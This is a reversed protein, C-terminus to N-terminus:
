AAAAAPAPRRLLPWLAVACLAAQSTLGFLLDLRGPLPPGGILLVWALALLAVRSRRGRVEGALHTILWLGPAVAYFSPTLPSRLSALLLLAIWTQARRPREEARRGARWALLALVATYVWSAASAVRTTMGPLGLADLKIVLGYISANRSIFMLERRFFSFAEGSAIRPLQYSVFAAYPAPGLVVLGLLIWAAAFACTWAVERYRRQAVLYVLLVGPFLKAVIAASLLGGGLIPRRAEFAWLGGVALAFTAAHFQGFQLNMLTPISALLPAILLGALLGERGGIWAAFLAAALALGLAQLLFWAARITLFDGSAALAARPLLLFPPPYEYPDEIWPGLNAVPSDFGPKSPEGPKWAFAPYFRADYLNPEGRRQLDAAHVYAALCQHGAAQPTPVASGWRRAPDGMFASLRALQALAILACLGWLAARLPRRRRAGRLSPPLRRAVARLPAFCAAGGSLGVWLGFRAAAPGVIAAAGLSAFAALAWRELGVPEAAPRNEM